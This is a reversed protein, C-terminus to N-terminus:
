WSTSADALGAAQTVALEVAAPDRVDAPLAAAQVGRARIEEAAADLREARRGIIAVNCGHAALALGIGRGIGSGGGTILATKGKLLDPQFVM